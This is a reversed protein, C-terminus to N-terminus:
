TRVPSVLHKQTCSEVPQILVPRMSGSFSLSVLDESIAKLADMLFCGDLSIVLKKEGSISEIKQVEEIKGLDSSFSSILLKSNDLIELKVNNNRSDRAFLCARDIGKLFQNREIIITTKSEEPFLITVNPYTGEILRTYFTIDQSKFVLYRDSIYLAIEESSNSFIRILEKASQLPLIYTGNMGTAIVMESLALRHSNTAALMLKNAQFSLLLGTLVPRSDNHSVAFSTQKIMQTLSHMPMEISKMSILEPLKPFDNPNFGSLLITIEESQIKIKDNEILLITIMNPMKKVLELLHKASIVISGTEFIEMRGNGLLPIEKEIYIDHNTSALTLGNSGATIKISGLIASNTNSPVIRIIETIAEYFYDREIRFNM